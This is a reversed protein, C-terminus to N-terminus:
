MNCPEFFNQKGQQKNWRNCFFHRLNVSLFIMKSRVNLLRERRLFFFFFVSCSESTLAIAYVVKQSVNHFRNGVGAVRVSKGGTHPSFSFWRTPLGALVWVSM